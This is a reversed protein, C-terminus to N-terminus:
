PIPPNPPTLCNDPHQYTTRRWAWRFSEQLHAPSQGSMPFRERLHASGQGSTPFRGRLHASGQGSTPFRERLHASGQGSTPFRGAASAFDQRCASVGRQAHKVVQRLRFSPLFRKTKGRRPMGGLFLFRGSLATFETRCLADPHASRM